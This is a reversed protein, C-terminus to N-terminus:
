FNDTQKIMRCTPNFCHMFYSFGEDASRTQMEVIVVKNSKCRSCQYNPNEKIEVPNAIFKDKLNRKERYKSFLEQDYGYKNDKIDQLIKSIEIGELIKGYIEYLFEEPNNYINSYKKILLYDTKALKGKKIFKNFEKEM